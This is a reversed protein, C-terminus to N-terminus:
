FPLSKSTSSATLSKFHESPVFDQPLNARKVIKRMNYQLSQQVLQKVAKKEMSMAEESEEVYIKSDINCNSSSPTGIIPASM